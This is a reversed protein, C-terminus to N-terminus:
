TCIFGIIAFSITARWIPDFKPQSIAPTTAIKFKWVALKSCIEMKSINAVCENHSKCFEIYESYKSFLRSLHITVSHNRHIMEGIRKYSSIPDIKKVIYAFSCRANVLHPSRKTSVFNEISISCSQCVVDRINALDTDTFLSKEHNLLRNKTSKVGNKKARTSIAIVNVDSADAKLFRTPTPEPRYEGFTTGTLIM